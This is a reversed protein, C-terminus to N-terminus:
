FDLQFSYLRDMSTQVKSELFLFSKDNIWLSTISRSILGLKVLVLSIIRITIVLLRSSGIELHFTTDLLRHSLLPFLAQVWLCFPSLSQVWQCFSLSMFAFELLLSFLTWNWFRSFCLGFCSSRLIVFGIKLGWFRYRWFLDFKGASKM